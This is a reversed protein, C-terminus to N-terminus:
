SLDDLLLMLDVQQDIYSCRLNTSGTNVSKTSTLMLFIDGGKECVHRVRGCLGVPLELEVNGTVTHRNVQVIDDVKISQTEGLEEWLGSCREILSTDSQNEMKVFQHM